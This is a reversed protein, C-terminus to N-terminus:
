KNELRGELNAIRLKALELENKLKDLKENLIALDNTHAINMKKYVNSAVEEMKRDLEEKAQQAKFVLKEVFGEHEEDEAFEEMVEDVKKKGQAAMDSLKNLLDKDKAILYLNSSLTLLELLTKSKM